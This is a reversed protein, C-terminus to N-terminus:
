EIKKIKTNKLKNINDLHKKNHNLKNTEKKTDKNDIKNMFLSYTVNKFSNNVVQKEKNYIKHLIKRPKIIKAITEESM